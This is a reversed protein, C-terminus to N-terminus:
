DRRSPEWGRRPARSGTPHPERKRYVVYPRALYQLPVSFVHVLRTFPWIAFLLMGAIAHLQFPLPAAAMIAGNPQFVLVSRFWVAVDERYNHGEGFIGSAYWSVLVGLVIALGLFVYMIKDGTSTRELVRTVTRRRYILLAFGVITCAGATLSLPVTLTHYTHESIGLAETWSEPIMLGLFHGAIVALIGYHFLPSAIRLISKEYLQSSRTTWGFKDYRYRWILGTIMTAMVVYPLAIWLIEMAASPETAAVDALIM